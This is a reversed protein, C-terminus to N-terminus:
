YGLLQLLHIKVAPWESEVISYRASDRAIHDTALRHGRLIGEFSAGIRALAKRSRQNRADTHFCVRLMRWTEFAHSLLLLKAETNAATCIAQRTLWTYGIEGADPAARHRRAHGQPWNWYELDFCRTSGIVTGDATRVIAFALASGAECWSRATEIYDLVQIRGQPVMSWQYLGPDAAAAAILGDAHAPALPELRVQRGSLVPHDSQM